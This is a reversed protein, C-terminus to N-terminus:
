SPTMTLIASPFTTRTTCIAQNRTPTWETNSKQIVFLKSTNMREKWKSAKEAKGNDDNGDEERDSDEESGTDKESQM